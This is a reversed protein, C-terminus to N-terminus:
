AHKLPTEQYKKDAQFVKRVLIVIVLCLIAFLIWQVIGNPMFSNSGLIVSSALNNGNNTISEDSTTGNRNYIPNINSSNEGIIGDQGAYGNITFFASNSYGGGPAPNFVTIYRGGSGLMDGANLHILLHSYDIFTTPRPSGHWRVVSSPVFDSGTITVTMPGEGLNASKPSISKITPIPNEAPESNISNSMGAHNYPYYFGNSQANAETALFTVAVFALIIFTAFMYFISNNKIKNMGNSIM